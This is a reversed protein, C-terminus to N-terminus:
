EAAERRATILASLDDYASNLRPTWLGRDAAERFKAAMETLAAPNKRDLFDRVTPDGLYADYLADFHHSGVAGTTAAYAFLYDVTAAMEAGGKYGHRMMGAIWKPNAARGRVVRGIEEQLPRVRPHEPLANDGHYIRPAIGRLGEVTAALGGQFQYYDDSDLIDHERNDQNHVVADAGKLREVLVERAPAGAQGGGYAFSGWALFTDALDSRKEWLGEDLPVQMGAGYAGARAGFIRSGAKRRADDPEIGLSSLRAETARAAGALPNATDDEDLSAIARIASDMLDIQDPFADRFMGSIKLTVDIRPRRLESLPIVRFGTVRGTGKEWVPEAGILALVEAIDDGGTRMNSTGWASMAISRPWEGEDEFYRLALEEAAARGTAWAARTPVARVDVSYFNRGTPLSDPRGRTPSGSPGPRVFRGDLGALVAAIEADGSADLAPALEATVWGLVADTAAGPAAVSEPRADGILARALLAIREVTDGVTRWPGASAGALIAPRPGTWDGGPDATLPDLDLGLDAAIARDLSQDEPQGGSRPTRAIAALTAIREGAEPAAGLIHLGDRIQLEKLECLHADLARLTEDSQGRALGLDAALGHREALAAIEKELWARRQRDIGAAVYYEDILTELEALAGYTEARTMAPMLHDVVVASSRRKAQSGEGPDNVIFPYILPVTGLAVEPWCTEALGLAKGPLWELNGHKGVQVVADAGFELRLWAYFALYAHTPVLAPDHYTAKPDVDYGRSPQLGAVLNGYRLAPIALAGDSFSPDAEPQGWQAIVADRNAAPLTDFFARYATLALRPCDPAGGSSAARLADMLAAGNDPFAPADYGAAILAEAIRVTSEPTDLGVGNALRGERNPYRSLLLAVRREAPARRGLRVWASAQRAVFRIRDALPRYVTATGGAVAVESKFSVARTLIRGDVEPLVVNMTLDRPQLGRPGERWAPESSGSFVVQLVPRGPEDLVTGANAAGIRSVAFATANLVIAPPFAAFAERLFTESEADKLSTVFIPLASIGEADLAEVLADVPATSGGAVLARYFVIPAVARGPDTRGRMEDLTLAGSGPWWAGAHPVVVPPGPREAEGLLAAMFALGRRTNEEGGEAFYRWLARCDEDAITSYAPLAADWRDDGPIVALKLGSRRAFARLSDLGYPWYGTGGMMRVVVLRSGAITKELYLDVSLPHSLRMLNATRVSVTAGSLAALAALESDASSLFVIDGPAQGLDVAGDGDDIRGADGALLHM